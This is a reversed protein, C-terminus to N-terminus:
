SNAEAVVRAAAKRGAPSETPDSAIRELEQLLALEAGAADAQARLFAVVTARNYRLAGGPTRMPRPFRGQESWRRIPQPEVGFYAAVESTPMHPSPRATPM